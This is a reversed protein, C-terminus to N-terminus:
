GGLRISVGLNAYRWLDNSVGLSAVLALRRSVSFGAGVGLVPHTTITEDKLDYYDLDGRKIELGLHGEVYFRRGEDYYLRAGATIPIGQYVSDIPIVIDGEFIVEDSKTGYQNFGVKGIVHFMGSPEVPYAVTVLGGVGTGDALRSLEELAFAAHGEIELKVQANAKGAMLLPIALMCPIALLSFVRRM